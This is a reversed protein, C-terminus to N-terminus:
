SGLYGIIRLSRDIAKAAKVVAEIAASKGFV